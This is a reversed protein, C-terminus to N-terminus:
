PTTTSLSLTYADVPGGGLATSLTMVQVIYSGSSLAVDTWAEDGAAFSSVPAMNADYINIGTDGTTNGNLTGSLLVDNTFTITYHAYVREALAAGVQNTIADGAAFSGIDTVALTTFAVNLTFDPVATYANIRFMYTGAKLASGIIENDEDAHYVISRGGASRVYLDVDGTTATLTGTMMVDQTLTITYYYSDGATLATEVQNVAGGNGMSGLDEPCATALSIDFSTVALYAYATLMYTGAELYVSVNESGDVAFSYGMQNQDIIYLDMDGNPSTVTGTVTAPATLTLMFTATEDQALAGGTRQITTECNGNFTGFAPFATCVSTSTNDCEYGFEVECLDSCGDNSVPTGNIDDCGEGADVIGNGCVPFSFDISYDTTGPAAGWAGAIVYVTEAVTATYTLTEPEDAAAACVSANACTSVLMIYADLGGSESVVMTQGATLSVEFVAEVAGAQPLGFGGNCSADQLDHQDTYDATIDTGTFSINGTVVTPAACSDGTPGTTCGTTVWDDCTTNCGLTGGTFGGGITTCGQSNLDTGDCTEGTDVTDNGCSSICNTTDWDDCTSNCALTGGSFGGGITTCDQNNLLVGDCTEGTDLASNGCDNLTVCGTTVWDDCTANCALTGGTFGGGITTCDQSNLDPGDCTEGTDVSDNGCNNDTTCATTIWGDCFNNCTLIGGTFGMGISTCDAMRHDVGDCTETGVAVNDGCYMTSNNNNQNQNNDGDDDSCAASGLALLAGMTTTLLQTRM